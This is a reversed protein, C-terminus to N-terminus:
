PPRKQPNAAHRTLSLSPSLSLVFAKSLLSTYSDFSAPQSASGAKRNKATLPTYLPVLFSSHITPKAGQGEGEPFRSRLGVPITANCAGRLLSKSRTM